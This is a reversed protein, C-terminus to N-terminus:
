YVFQGEDVGGPRRKEFVRRPWAVGEIKSGLVVLVVVAMSVDVGGKSTCVQGKGELRKRRV